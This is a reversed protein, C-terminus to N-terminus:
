ADHERRGRWADRLWREHEAADVGGDSVMGISQPLGGDDDALYANLAERVVDSQRVGTRRVHRKLAADRRTWV